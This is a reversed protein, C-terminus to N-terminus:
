ARYHLGGRDQRGVGERLQPEGPALREEPEEQDGHRNRRRREDDREVEHGGPRPQPVREPADDDGEHQGRGAGDEEQSLTEPGHGAFENVRRPDVPRAM